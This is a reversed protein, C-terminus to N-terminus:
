CHRHGSPFRPQATQSRALPRFPLPKLGLAAVTGIQFPHADPSEVQSPQRLSDGRVGARERPLPLWYFHMPPWHSSVSEKIFTRPPQRGEAGAGRGRPSPALLICRRGTHPSRNRKRLSNPSLSDGRVGAREGLSLSGTFISRRGTHPSLIRNRLSDGRVGARERPLPLWYFHMPRWHATDSHPNSQLLVAACISHSVVLSSLGRLLRPAAM